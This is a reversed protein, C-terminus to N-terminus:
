CRKKIRHSITKDQEINKMVGHCFYLYFFSCFIDRIRFDLAAM